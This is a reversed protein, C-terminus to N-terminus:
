LTAPPPSVRPPEMPPPLLRRLHRPDVTSTTCWRGPRGADFDAPLRPIGSGTQWWGRRIRSRGCRGDPAPENGREHLDHHAPRGSGRRRDRGPRSLEQYQAFIRDGAPSRADRLHWRNRGPGPIAAARGAPPVCQGPGPGRRGLGLNRGSHVGLRNGIQDWGETLVEHELAARDYRVLRVRDAYFDIEPGANGYM